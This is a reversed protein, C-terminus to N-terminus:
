KSLSLPLSLHLHPSFSGWASEVATCLRVQPEFGCVTLDHGSDFDLIPHKVSRAVGASWRFSKSLNGFQGGSIINWNVSKELM